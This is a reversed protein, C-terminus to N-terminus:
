NRLWLVQLQIIIPYEAIDVSVLGNFNKDLFVLSQNLMIKEFQSYALSVRSLKLPMPVHATMMVLM